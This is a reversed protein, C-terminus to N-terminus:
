PSRQRMRSPDSLILMLELSRISVCTVPMSSCLCVYTHTSVCICGLEMQQFPRFDGCGLGFLMAQAWIHTEKKRGKKKKSKLAAGTAYPPKWALPRILAVAALRCWLCLLAPDSGCRRGIGCTMAVRIRLGSLSALSQLRLRM